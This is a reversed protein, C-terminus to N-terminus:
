NLRSSAHQTGELDIRDLKLFAEYSSIVVREGPKLGDLIEAYESNRRGLRVDRRTAYRGDSSVVFVWHGGSDQYFPGNPLMATYTSGGLELRIEIAQGAYISRPAPNRFQLDVRFTGNAVQPYVKIVNAEYRRGDISFVALQGPAVRGLYYEDLQAVLKFHDLSDVQGLVAGQAKSQGVEADLSTLQGDMPARITLADLSAKATDISENLRALTRTLQALQTARVQQETDRSAITAARLKLDYAYEEQEEAYTSPALAKGDLLIKDRVLQGKLKGIQHEIDLLDHQYKFRTEEIQLRTNELANIQTAVDAERSAVQLQLAANSLVVLPQHAKVAAGDEALVQRVVGGQEATLYRTTFPAALGRVAIFDDFRGNTVTAITLREVPIRFTQSAARTVLWVVGAIAFLGGLLHPVYRRWISPRRLPRDMASFSRSTVPEQRRSNEPYAPAPGEEHSEIRM